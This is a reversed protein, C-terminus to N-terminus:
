QRERMEERIDAAAARGQGKAPLAFHFTAGRDPQAEAWVRGGHKHVIRQVTALGVGTGEFEEQSHLRQFVGFLKDAYKMDFGVGNDSVSVTVDGDERRASITIVARPRTRTFKVANGILNAFVQRVLAPDCEVTPLPGIRWEIDRGAWEEELARMVQDVLTRLSARERVIPQRGVRSLNLLDDTLCGMQQTAERIRQLHRRVESPLHPAYDELLIRSFGDIHRLPARLDHSVSYSFADLEKNSQQLAHNVRMLDDTSPLALAKPVLKVLLVATPVSAAATVVKVMGSAWYTSYWLTVIEMVHTMGCAVIFTGFCLFMWNFPLDKRKRVFHVLTIPISLYALAILSDSIVHLWVLRANWLYCTGHPLFDGTSFLQKLWEM